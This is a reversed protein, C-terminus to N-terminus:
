RLVDYAAQLAEDLWRKTEDTSASRRAAVAAALEKLAARLTANETHEAEVLHALRVTPADNM